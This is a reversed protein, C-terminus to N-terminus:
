RFINLFTSIDLFLHEIAEGVIKRQINLDIAMPFITLFKKPLIQNEWSKEWHPHIHDCPIVEGSHVCLPTIKKENSNRYPQTL